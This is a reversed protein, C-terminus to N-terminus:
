KESDLMKKEMIEKLSGNELVLMKGFKIKKIGVKTSNILFENKTFNLESENM